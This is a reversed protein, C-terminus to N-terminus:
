CASFAGMLIDMCSVGNLLSLEVEVGVTEGFLVPTVLSAMSDRSVVLVALLVLLLAQEAEGCGVIVVVGDVDEERAGM